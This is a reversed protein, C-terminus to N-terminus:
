KHKVPMESTSGSSPARVLVRNGVRFVEKWANDNPVSADTMEKVLVDLEILPDETFVPLKPKIERFLFPLEFDQRMKNVVVTGKLGKVMDKFKSHDSRAKILMEKYEPGSILKNENDWFCPLGYNVLPTLAGKFDHVVKQIQAMKGRVSNLLAYKHLVRRADVLLVTRNSVKLVQLDAARAKSLFNIANQAVQQTRNALKEDALKSRSFDMELAKEHEEVIMLQPRFAQIDESLEDWLLHKEGELPLVGKVKEKLKTIKEELKVKDEKLKNIEQVRSDQAELRAIEQRLEFNKEKLDSIEVEKVSIGAIDHTIQDIPSWPETVKNSNLQEIVQLLKNKEEEFAKKEEQLVLIKANDEISKLNLGAIEDHLKVLAPSPTTDVNV